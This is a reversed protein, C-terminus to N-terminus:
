TKLIKELYDNIPNIHDNLLIMLIIQWLRNQVDTQTETLM